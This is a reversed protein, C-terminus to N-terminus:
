GTIACGDELVYVRTHHTSVSNRQIFPHLPHFAMPKSVLRKEDVAHKKLSCYVYVQEYTTDMLFIRFIFVICVRFLLSVFAM